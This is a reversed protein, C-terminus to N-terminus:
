CQFFTPVPSRNQISTPSRRMSGSVALVAQARQGALWTNSPDAADPDFAASESYEALPLQQIACM